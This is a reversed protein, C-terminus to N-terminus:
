KRDNSVGTIRLAPLTGNIPTWAGAPAVDYIGQAGISNLNWGIVNAARAKIEVWYVGGAMVPVGKASLSSFVCCQGGAPVNQLNFEHKKRGPIHDRSGKLFVLANGIGSVTSLPIDIETVHGAAVPVFPVAVLTRPGAEPGMANVTNCCDFLAEDDDSFTNFFVTQASAVFPALCLALLAFLNRM